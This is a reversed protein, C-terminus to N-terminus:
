RLARGSQPTEPGGETALSVNPPVLPLRINALVTTTGSLIEILGDACETGTRYQDYHPDERYSVVLDLADVHAQSINGHLDLTAVVPIDGVADRIRTAITGEIDDDQTATMAGHNSIYVADLPKERELADLIEELYAEVTDQDAPGAPKMGAYVIPVPDWNTMEDMRQVFGSMEKHLRPNASRADDLIEAGRFTSSAEEPTFRFPRCFSNSEIFIGAIAVRPRDTM